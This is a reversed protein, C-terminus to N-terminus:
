PRALNRPAPSRVRVTWQLYSAPWSLWSSSTTSSPRGRFAEDGSPLLAEVFIRTSSNKSPRIRDVINHDINDMNTHLGNNTRRHAKATDRPPPLAPAPDVPVPPWQPLLSPPLPAQPPGRTPEPDHGHYRAPQSGPRPFSALADIPTSSIRPTTTSPEGAGPAVLAVYPEPPPVPLGHSRMAAVDASMALPLLLAGAVIASGLVLTLVLVALPRLRRAGGAAPRPPAMCRVPDGSSGAVAVVVPDGDQQPLITYQLCNEGQRVTKYM